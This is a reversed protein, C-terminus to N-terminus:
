EMYLDNERETEMWRDVRGDVVEIMIRGITQVEM